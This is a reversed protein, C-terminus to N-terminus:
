CLTKGHAFHVKGVEKIMIEQSDQVFSACPKAGGDM